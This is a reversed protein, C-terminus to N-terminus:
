FVGAVWSLASSMGAPLAIALTSTAHLEWSLFAHLLSWIEQLVSLWRTQSILLYSTRLMMWM